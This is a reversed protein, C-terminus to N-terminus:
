PDECTVRRHLRNEFMFCQDLDKVLIALCRAKGEDVTLLSTESSMAIVSYCENDFDATM